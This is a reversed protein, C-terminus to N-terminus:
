WTWPHNQLGRCTLNHRGFFRCAVRRPACYAFDRPSSLAYLLWWTLDSRCEHRFRYRVGM